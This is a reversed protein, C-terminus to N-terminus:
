IARLSYVSEYQGLSTYPSTNGRPLIGVRIAGRPLIGVQIPGARSPSYCFYEGLLPLQAYRYQSELRSIRHFIARPFKRTAQSSKM